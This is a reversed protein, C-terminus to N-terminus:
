QLDIHDYSWEHEYTDDPNLFIVTLSDELILKVERDKNGIEVKGGLKKCMNALLEVADSFPLEAMLFAHTNEKLLYGSPLLSKATVIKHQLEKLTILNKSLSQHTLSYKQAISLISYGHCAVDIMAKISNEKLRPMFQSTLYQVQAEDFFM